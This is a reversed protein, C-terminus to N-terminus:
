YGRDSNLSAVILVSVLLVGVALGLLPNHNAAVWLLGVLFGGVGIVTCLVVFVLLISLILDLIAM